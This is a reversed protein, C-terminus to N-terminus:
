VIQVSSLELCLMLYFLLLALFFAVCNFYSVKSLVHCSCASNVSYSCRNHCFSLLALDLYGMSKIM